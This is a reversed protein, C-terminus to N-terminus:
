PGFAALALGGALPTTGAITASIALSSQAATFTSHAGTFANNDAGGDSSGNADVQETIGSWTWSSPGTTTLGEAMGIIAGNANCSLTTNVAAATFATDTATHTPAGSSGYVAWVAIYCRVMSASCNVVITATTGSPVALYYLAAIDAGQSADNAQSGALTAGNGGITVSSISAASNTRTGVGVVVVRDAAASGIAAGTFTYATANSADFTGAQFSVSVAGASPAAGYGILEQFAFM